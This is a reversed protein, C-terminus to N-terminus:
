AREKIELITDKRGRITTIIQFLIKALGYKKGLMQDVTRSLEDSSVERATAPLWEGTPTGSGTCPAIMIQGNNRIRKVKGSNAETRVYLIDNDLVFWVPTKMSQGNKRVTDLCVYKQNKFVTNLSM